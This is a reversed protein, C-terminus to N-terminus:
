QVRKKPPLPQMLVEHIKKRFYEKLGTQNAPLTSIQIEITKTPATGLMRTYGLSHKEFIENWLMEVLQEAKKEDYSVRKVEVVNAM